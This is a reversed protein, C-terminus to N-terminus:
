GDMEGEWQGNGMARQGYRGVALGCSVAGGSRRGGSSCRPASLLGSSLLPSPMYLLLLYSTPPLLYSTPPLLHLATCHIITSDSFLLGSVWALRGRLTTGCMGRVVRVVGGSVV